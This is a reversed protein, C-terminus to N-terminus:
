PAALNILAIAGFAAAIMLLQVNLQLLATILVWVMMIQMPQVRIPGIIIVMWAWALIELQTDLRIMKRYDVNSIVVNLLSEQDDRTTGSYAGAYSDKFSIQAWLGVGVGSPNLVQWWMSQGEPLHNVSTWKFRSTDIMVSSSLAYSSFDYYNDYTNCISATNQFIAVTITDLIAM